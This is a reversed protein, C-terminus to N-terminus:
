PCICGYSNCYDKGCKGTKCTSNDACRSTVYPCESGGGNGNGNDCGVLVLGAAMVIGILAIAFFRAQKISLRNRNAMKNEKPKPLVKFIYRWIL